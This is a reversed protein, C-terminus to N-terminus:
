VNEIDSKNYDFVAHHSQHNSKDDNDKRVQTGSAFLRCM